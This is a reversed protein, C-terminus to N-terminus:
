LTRIENAPIYCNSLTWRPSSESSLCNVQMKGRLAASLTRLLSAPCTIVSGPSLGRLETELRSVESHSKPAKYKSFANLQFALCLSSYQQSKPDHHKVMSFSPFAPSM